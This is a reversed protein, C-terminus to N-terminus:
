KPQPSVKIPEPITITPFNGAEILKTVEKLVEATIDVAKSHALVSSSTLVVDLGKDAAIKQALPAIRNRIKTIEARIAEQNARRQQDHAQRIKNGAEMQAQELQRRKRAWEVILKQEADTLRNGKPQPRAGVEEALAKLKAQLNQQLVRMSTQLNQDRIKATKEIKSKRGTDEAIKNLDVVALHGPHDPAAKKAKPAATGRTTDTFISRSAAHDAPTQPRDCYAIAIALGLIIIVTRMQKFM